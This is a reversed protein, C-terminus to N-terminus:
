PIFLADELEDLNRARFVAGFKGEMWLDARGLVADSLFQAWRDRAVEALYPLRGLEDLNVNFKGTSRHDCVSCTLYYDAFSYTLGPSAEFLSLFPVGPAASKRAGAEAGEQEPQIVSVINMYAQNVSPWSLRKIPQPEVRLWGSGRIYFENIYHTQLPSGWAPYGAVTRTPIGAARGLASALNAWGTCSGYRARLVSRADLGDGYSTGNMNTRLWQLIGILKEQDSVAESAAEAAAKIILPDDSQVITTPALWTSPDREEHEFDQLRAAPSMEMELVLAEVHLRTPTLAHIGATAIWNRDWRKEFSINTIAGDQETFIRLALPVQGQHLAPIPFAIEGDGEIRSVGEIQYVSSGVLPSVQEFGDIQSPDWQLLKVDDMAVTSGWGMSIDVNGSFSNPTFFVGNRLGWPESAIWTKFDTTPSDFGGEIQFNLLGKGLGAFKAQATLLSPWGSNISLAQDLTIYGYADGPNVEIHSSGEPSNKRVYLFAARGHTELQWPLIGDEFGGSRVVNVPLPLRPVKEQATFFIHRDQASNGMIAIPAPIAASAQVIITDIGLPPLERWIQSSLRAFKEHAALQITSSQREQGEQIAKITITLPSKTQNILGLGIWSLWEAKSVPIVWNMSLRDNLFFECLSPSDKYQFSIKALLMRESTLNASGDYNLSSAPITTWDNPAAILDATPGIASGDSAYKQLRFAVELSDSNFVSIATKWDGATTHAAWVHTTRGPVPAMQATIFLPHDQTDEGSISIPAPIAQDTQILISDFDGYRLSPWIESSLRVFKQHSPIQFSKSGIEVGRRYAKLDAHISTNGPNILSIGTWSLWDHVSNPIVWGTATSQSLYFECLSNSNLYQYSTKILLDGSSMIHLSGEFSLEDSAVIRWSRSPVAFDKANELQGGQLGYKELKFSVDRATSNYVAVTTKWSGATIHPSWVDTDAVASAEIGLMVGLAFLATFWNNREFM